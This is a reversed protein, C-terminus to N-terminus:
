AMRKLARIWGLQRAKFQATREARRRFEMDGGDVTWFTNEELQGEPLLQYTLTLRTNIMNVIIQKGEVHVVLERM